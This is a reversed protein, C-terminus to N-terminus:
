VTVQYTRGFEKKLRIPGDNRTTLVFRKEPGGNWVIGRAHRTYDHEQTDYVIEKDSIVVIDPFCYEFVEACYGSERGHHSAVFVRTASLDSIFGPSQLLSEWGEVELDGTFAISLTDYKLFTVLSLNNTDKFAPYHNFYMRLTIGGYDPVALLPQNYADQLAIASAMQNTVGGGLLKVLRLYHAPVSTNRYFVEVRFSNIVNDLDSVHDQDFNQIILGSITRWGHTYLFAAPAFGTDNNKGCDILLLKGNDTFVAACFGHAVDYFDVLM